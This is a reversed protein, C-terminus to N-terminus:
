ESEKRVWARVGLIFLSVIGGAIALLVVNGVISSARSWTRAGTRVFAAEDRTLACLHAPPPLHKAIEAAVHAAVTPDLFAYRVVDSALSRFEEHSLDKINPPTM